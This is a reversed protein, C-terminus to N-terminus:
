AKKQDILHLCVDTALGSIFKTKKRFFREVLGLNRAFFRSVSNEPFAFVDVEWETRKGEDGIGRVRIYNLSKFHGFGREGEVYLVMRMAGDEGPGRLLEHIETFQKKKNIFSYRGDEEQKIVFEPKEGEDLLDSYAEQVASLVDDMELLNIANTFAVALEGRGTVHIYHNSIVSGSRLCDKLEEPLCEHATSTGAQLWGSFVLCFLAFRRLM